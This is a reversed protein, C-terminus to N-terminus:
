RVQALLRRAEPCFSDDDAATAQENLLKLMTAIQKRKRALRGHPAILAAKSLLRNFMQLTAFSSRAAVRAARGGRHVYLYEIWGLYAWLAPVVRLDDAGSSAGQVHAGAFADTGRVPLNAERYRAALDRDEYYLFYRPDFGGVARFESRRVLLMSGSMWPTRVRPTQRRPRGFERPRLPGLAQAFWEQILGPEDQVGILGNTDSSRRRPGVLGLPESDLLKALASDDCQTVVVDPNLFLVHRCTTLTLGRNAARGFGENSNNAVVHVDADLLIQRTRDRSANDVVIAEAAPLYERVADVCFRICGASNFTVIVVALDM